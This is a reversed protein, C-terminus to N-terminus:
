LFKKIKPNDYFYKDRTKERRKKGYKKYEPLMELSMTGLRSGNFDVM